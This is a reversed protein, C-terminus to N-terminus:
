RAFAENLLRALRLGALALRENVVEINTRFYAEDVQSGDSLWVQKALAFSENAWNEPSGGAKDQLRRRVIWRELYSVYDAERRGAHEILGIDWVFHLNCAYKGCQTQGFEVVHIENGGRAEGIAHLPQHIDGVFHVVFKLAEVRDRRLANKDALVHAFLSIREVVCNRHDEKTAPHRGDPRYCDRQELFGSSIVPIDVFHWASTEPREAKIDDAWASVAALDDSGLLERIRVRAHDTLHSRAIDGVIEHGEPGWAVSSTSVSLLFLFLAACRWVPVAFIKVAFSASAV